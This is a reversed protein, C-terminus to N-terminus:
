FFTTSRFSIYLKTMHRDEMHHIFKLKLIYIPDVHVLILNVCSKICAGLVMMLSNLLKPPSVDLLASIVKGHTDM